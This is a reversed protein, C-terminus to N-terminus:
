EDDEDEPECVCDEILEGCADCRDCECNMYHPREILENCDPCRECGCDEIREDCRECFTCTCEDYREGCYSCTEVPRLEEGYIRYYIDEYDSPINYEMGAEKFAKVAAEANWWFIHRGWEDDMNFSSLFEHLMEMVVYYEGKALHDYIDSWNGFCAEDGQQAHPHAFGNMPNVDNTISIRAKESDLTITYGGLDVIDDVRIPITRINIASGSVSVSDVYPLRKIEEFSQLVEDIYRSNLRQITGNITINNQNISHQANGINSQYNRISERLSGNNRKLDNCDKLFKRAVELRQYQKEGEETSPFSVFSVPSVDVNNLLPSVVKTWFKTDTLVSSFGFGRTTEILSYNFFVVEYQDKYGSGWFIRGTGNDIQKKRFLSTLYYPAYSPNEQTFFVEKGEYNIGHISPDIESVNDRQIATFFVYNFGSPLWDIYAENNKCINIILPRGNILPLFNVVPSIHYGEGNIITVRPAIAAYYGIMNCVYNTTSLYDVFQKIDAKDLQRPKLETISCSSHTYVLRINSFTSVLTSLTEDEELVKTPIYISEKEFLSEFDIEM